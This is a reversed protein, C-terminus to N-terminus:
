GRVRNLSRRAMLVLEAGIAVTGLVWDSVRVRDSARRRPVAGGAAVIPRAPAAPREDPLTTPLMQTSPM